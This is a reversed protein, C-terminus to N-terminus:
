SLLAIIEAIDQQVDALTQNALQAKGLLEAMEAGGKTGQPLKDLSRELFAFTSMSGSYAKKAFEQAKELLELLSLSSWDPEGYMIM